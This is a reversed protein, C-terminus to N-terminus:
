KNAKWEDYQRQMEAIVTESGATKLKELFKPLYEDPDTAGVMLSPAFEQYVNEIASIENMVNEPNFVFGLAPSIKSNNNFEEYKQWTDAPLGDEIRLLFRNGQPYVIPAYGTDERKTVGEPLKYHTDGM